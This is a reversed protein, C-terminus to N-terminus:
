KIIVFKDYNLNELVKNWRELMNSEPDEVLKPQYGADLYTKIAPLRFDDTTLVATQLNRSEFVSLSKTAIAHGLGKGRESNKVKVMHLYGVNDDRTVTTFSAVKEGLENCIFYIDTLPKVNAFELILKRYCLDGDETVLAPAETMISKWDVVDKESGNFVAYKYGKPLQRECARNLVTAQMELQKM